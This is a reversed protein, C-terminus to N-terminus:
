WGHRGCQHHDKCVPAGCVLSGANDCGGTAKRNCGEVSCILDDHEKCPLEKGCIANSWGCGVNYECVGSSNISADELKAIMKSVRDVDAQADELNAEAKALEDQLERLRIKELAPDHVYKAVIINWAESDNECYLLKQDDLEPYFENMFAQGVRQNPYKGQYFNRNFLGLEEHSIQRM